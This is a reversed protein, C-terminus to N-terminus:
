RAYLADLVIQFTDSNTVPNDQEIYELEILEGNDLQRYQKIIGFGTHDSNWCQAVIAEIADLQQSPRKRTEEEPANKPLNRTWVDAIFIVTQAKSEFVMKAITLAAERKQFDNEWPTGIVQSNGSEDIIMWTPLVDTITRFEFANEVMQRMLTKAPFNM